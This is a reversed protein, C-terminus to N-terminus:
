GKRNKTRIECKYQKKNKEENQQKIQKQKIQNNTM